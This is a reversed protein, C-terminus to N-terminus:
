GVKRNILDIVKARDFFRNNEGTRCDGFEYIVKKTVTSHSLRLSREILDCVEKRSMRLDARCTQEIAGM